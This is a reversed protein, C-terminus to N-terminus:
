SKKKTRRISDILYVVRQCCSDCLFRSFPIHKGRFSKVSKDFFFFRKFNFKVWGAKTLRRRLQFVEKGLVDRWIECGENLSWRTNLARTENAIPINNHHIQNCKRLKKKIDTSIQCLTSFYDEHSHILYSLFFIAIRNFAPWIILLTDEVRVKDYSCRLTWFTFERPLTLFGTTNAPKKILWKRHKRKKM